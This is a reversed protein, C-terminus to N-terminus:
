GHTLDSDGATWLMNDILRAGGLFAAVALRVSGNIERVPRLTKPDSLEFYELKIEPHQSLVATGASRVADVSREGANM